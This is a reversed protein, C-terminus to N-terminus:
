NNGNNSDGKTDIIEEMCVLKYHDITQKGCNTCNYEIYFDDDPPYSRDGEEQIPDDCCKFKKQIDEMTGFHFKNM